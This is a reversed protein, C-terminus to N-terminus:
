STSTRKPDIIYQSVKSMHTLVQSDKYKDYDFIFIKCTTTRITVKDNAEIIYSGEFQAILKEV